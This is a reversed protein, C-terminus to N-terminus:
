KFFFKLWHKWNSEQKKQTEIKKEPEKPPTIVIAKEGPKQLELKTRAEQEKFFDSQLYNLTEDLKLNEAELREAETKLGDIEKKIAYRKVIVKGSSILALVLILILVATAKWSSFIKKFHSYESEPM